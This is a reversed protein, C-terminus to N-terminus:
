KLFEACSEMLCSNSTCAHVSHCCQCMVITRATTVIFIKEQPNWTRQPLPWCSSTGEIVDWTNTHAGQAYHGINLSHFSATYWLNTSSFLSMLIISHRGVANSTKFSLSGSAQVLLLMEVVCFGQLPISPQSCLSADSYAPLYQGACPDRPFKRAIISLNDSESVPSGM